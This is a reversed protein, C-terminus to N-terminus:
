ESLKQDPETPPIEPQKPLELPIEEPVEIKEVKPMEEIKIRENERKFWMYAEAVHSYAMPFLPHCDPFQDVWLDNVFGDLESHLSRIMQIYTAKDIYKLEICKLHPIVVDGSEGVLEKYIYETLLYARDLASIAKSIYYPHKNMDLYEIEKRLKEHVEYVASANRSLNQSEPPSLTKMYEPNKYQEMYKDMKKRAITLNASHTEIAEKNINLGRTINTLQGVTELILKLTRSEM